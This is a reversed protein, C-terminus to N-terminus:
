TWLGGHERIWRVEARQRDLSGEAVWTRQPEVGAEALTQELAITAEARSAVAETVDFAPLPGYADLFAAVRSRRDPVEPFHHWDLAEQTRVCRRSGACRTRWTTRAHRRTCSTGTSSVWRRTATGSSTGRDPTATASSRTRDRCPRRAGCPTRPRGGASRPTTSGVCCRRRRACAPRRTSTSGGTVAARGPSTASRRPARPSGWPSPCARSGRRACTGWSRTCPRRGPGPPDPSWGTVSTSPGCRTLLPTTRSTPCTRPRVALPTRVVPGLSSAPCTSHRRGTDMPSSPAVLSGVDDADPADPPDEWDQSQGDPRAPPRRPPPALDRVGGDPGVVAGLLAAPVGVELVAFWATRPIAACASSSASCPASSGSSSAGVVAFGLPAPARTVARALSELRREVMRRTDCFSEAIHRSLRQSRRHLLPESGIQSDTTPAQSPDHGVALERGIRPMPDRLRTSARRIKPIQQSTRHDIVLCSVAEVGSSSFRSLACNALSSSRDGPEGHGDLDAQVCPAVEVAFQHDWATLHGAGLGVAQRPEGTPQPLDVVPGPRRPM